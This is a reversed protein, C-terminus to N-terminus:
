LFWRSEKLKTLLVDPNWNPIDKLQGLLDAILDSYYITVPMTAPFFSRWSMFTLKYIQEVVYDLSKFTSERHLSILIPEPCGQLPTKLQYPGTLALLAANPGLPVCCGRGPVYEGKTKSKNNEWHNIGASNLDFIKWPHSRSIHVFAYEVDFDAIEGVFEKVATAETDKYRKFTQHFIMRVKDGPQWAYRKKIQDLTDRLVKLLSAQYEEFPVEKSVNSLLYSGDGSFVTTIGVIRESKSQRGQSRQSSGIGFILEHTLGQVSSLVWPIGGLKAYCAVSINNLVYVRSADRITEIEVAQMPLGQSMFVSKAVLYPNDSGRLQHFEEKGVLIALDHQVDKGLVELCKDRYSGADDADGDIPCLEINCGTLRYKRIFGQSYPVFRTSTRNPVAVGDRFQRMFIDVEGHVRRPFIVALRPVKKPFSETDFPGNEELRPDVPWKVTISGGPRLVCEPNKIWRFSGADRGQPPVFLDDAISFSLDSACKIPQSQKLWRIIKGLREVQFRAGRVRFIEEQKRDQIEKYDKSYLQALCRNLNELRPELYCKGSDVQSESVSDCLELTDGNVATVRGLLVSRSRGRVATRTEQSDRSEVYCGRVDVGLAILEKVTVNFGSRTSFDFLLGHTVKGSHPVIMRSEIEYQPYLSVPINSPEGLIRGMIDEKRLLVKATPWFGVLELGKNGLFGLLAEHVLARALGYDTETSFQRSHGMAESSTELPVCQITDGMRQFVHSGDYTNRLAKLQEDGEYPLESGSFTTGSFAIPIFNLKIEPQSSVM